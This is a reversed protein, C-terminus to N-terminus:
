HPEFTVTTKAAAAASDAANMATNSADNLLERANLIFGPIAELLADGYAQARGFITEAVADMPYTFNNEAGEEAILAKHKALRDSLRDAFAQAIRTLDDELSDDYKANQIPILKDRLPQIYPSYNTLLEEVTKLISNQVNQALEIAQDSNDTSQAFDVFSGSSAFFHELRQAIEAALNQNLVDCFDLLFKQLFQWPYTALLEDFDKKILQEVADNVATNVYENRMLITERGTEFDFPM